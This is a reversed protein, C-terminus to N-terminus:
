LPLDVFFGQLRVMRSCSISEKISCATRLSHRSSTGPELTVLTVWGAEATTTSLKLLREQDPRSRIEASAPEGRAWAVSALNSDGGLGGPKQWSSRRARVPRRAPLGRMTPPSLTTARGKAL